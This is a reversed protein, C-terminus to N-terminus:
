EYYVFVPDGIQIWDYIFLASFRNVRLCGHSAAHTPVIYYGHIAYGRLFYNSQIMGHDNEGPQKRYVHFEGLVTPTSPKGSSTMFIKYVQGHPNILALVQRTLDAEVHKGAAPYRVHFEGKGAAASFFVTRNANTVRKIGLMKRYAVVARQTSGAYKGDVPVAYHMDFLRQQLFRVNDGSDNNGAFPKLATVSVPASQSDAMIRDGKHFSKITIAGDSGPKYDVLFEGKSSGAVRTVSRSASKVVKGGRVFQVIVKAGKYYKSVVGHVKFHEGVLVVGKAGLAHVDQTALRISVTPPRPHKRRAVSAVPSTTAAPAQASAAAPVALAGLATIVAIRRM